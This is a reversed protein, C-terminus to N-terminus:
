GGMVEPALMWAILWRDDDRQLCVAAGPVFTVLAADEAGAVLRALLRGLHPMHGVIVASDTWQNVAEFLMDTTDNPSLGTVAEEVAPGAGLADSIHRATERARLKDSHIIRSVGAQSRALFVGLRQADGAGKDSLPRQANVDKTVPEAHQVLILKM